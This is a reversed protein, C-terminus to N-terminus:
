FAEHILSGFSPSHLFIGLEFLNLSSFTCVSFVEFLQVLLPSLCALLSIAKLKSGPVRVITPKLQGKTPSLAAQERKPIHM